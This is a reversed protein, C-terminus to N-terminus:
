TPLGMLEYDAEMNQSCLIRLANMAISGIQHGPMEGSIYSPASTYAFYLNHYSTPFAVNFEGIDIKFRSFRLSGLPNGNALFKNGTDLAGTAGATGGTFHYAYLWDYSATTIWNAGNDSSFQLTPFGATSVPRISGDILIRRFDGLDTHSFVTGTTRVGGIRKWRNYAVLAPTFGINDRGQAKQLDTFAQAGDVRVAVNTVFETSAVAKSNNGATQTVATADAALAPAVAAAATLRLDCKSGAAFARATTGEQGRVVTLTASSRATVRMVEINGSADVVTLPFWEGAALAPFKSADGSAISVTTVSNNIASALTSSANNTLKAVM